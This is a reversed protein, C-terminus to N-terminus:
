INMKLLLPIPSLNALIESVLFSFLCWISAVWYPIAISRVKGQLDGNQQQEWPIRSCKYVIINLFITENEGLLIGLYFCPISTGKHKVRYLAMFELFLRELLCQFHYEDTWLQYCGFDILFVCIIRHKCKFWKQVTQDLVRHCKFPQWPLLPNLCHESSLYQFYAWSAAWVPVMQHSRSVRGRLHDM